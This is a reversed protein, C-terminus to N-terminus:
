AVRTGDASCLIPRRQIRVVPGDHLVGNPSRGIGLVFIGSDFIGEGITLLGWSGADSSELGVSDLPTLSAKPAPGAVSDSSTKFKVLYLTSRPNTHKLLELRPALNPQGPPFIGFLNVKQIVPVIIFM